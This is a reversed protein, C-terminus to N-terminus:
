RCYYVNTESLHKHKFVHIINHNKTLFWKSYNVPKTSSWIYTFRVALVLIQTAKYLYNHLSYFYTPHNLKTIEIVASDFIM